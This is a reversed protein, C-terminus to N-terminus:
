YHANDSEPVVNLLKFILRGLNMLREKIQIKTSRYVTASAKEKVFEDLEKQEQNSL